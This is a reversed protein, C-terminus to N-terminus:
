PKSLQEVRTKAQPAKDSNPFKEILERYMKAAQDKKELVELCRAAEYAAEAQWKPYSYGYVVKFFSAVAESHAKQAFQVEGIMFQARAAVERNPAKGIVQQYLAMAEQPKNQNQLIWAQEYLTEGAHPSNPFKELGERLLGLAKDVQKLQSAAQASHLLALAQFDPTAFSKLKEFAALAEAHKNQKFLCEAEMFAADQALPGQPYAIQQYHFTQQARDYDGQHYYAWAMKHGAKESLESKGAKKIVEYYTWVAKAYDKNKYAAEATHYRAEAMRPSDPYKTALQDFAEVAKAEDGSLKLAWALQYLANDAGSYPPNQDLLGRFSAVAADYQKLGVQCLGLVYRADAQEAAQPTAQLMAQLDEVAPAFKQQEYRAMGRTYRARAALPHQPFQTLLRDITKEAAAADKQSLQTCALEHLANPVLASQPWKDVVLQHEAASAPYNGALYNYEGLRYHAKDLMQSGPLDAILQSVQAQAKALDNLRRYAGALALRTEDAQRWKPDAAVSAELSKVAEQDRKLELQSAGILYQAEALLSPTKLTALAPQLAAITEEYKKQLELALGRRVKWLEADPHDPYKQLLQAYQAEAEATKGLLLQSEAAVHMVDPTLEHNPQAALFATAHKLAAEYAGLELAAFGAMYLSQPATPDNPYKAAVAAYADVSEKKRDPLDYLADARDMLLQAAFPNDGAQPLAKEVVSLAQASQKEKLFGKAMWHAAEAGAPGAAAAAKDLLSRAEALNGALYYSKGGALLARAAHPSQPYKVAVSAYLAAAEAYRKLQSLADAQRLLAYDAHEFQPSAAAAAFRRAADDYQGAAFLTEGRRMGVEVALHNEPFKQLFLDYTKAAEQLQGTEEQAVGTAYLADALFKHNPFRTILQGYVQIAEAKKGRLYFCEGRYFLADPLFRSQAYRAILTNFTEAATDFLEPKGNQAITYQTVGLYLYAADLIELQPYGQIVNQFTALAQDYKRQQFYCVGLYHTAKGIRADAKFQEIFKGWAQEALDYSGHNQLQVAAAYAPTAPDATEQALLVQPQALAGILALVM